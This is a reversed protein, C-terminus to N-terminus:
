PLTGAATAIVTLGANGECSANADGMTVDVQDWVVGGGGGISYPPTPAVPTVTFACAGGDNFALTLSTVTASGGNNNTILVDMRKTDGPLIGWLDESQPDVVLDAATGATFSEASSSGAIDYAAYAAIAIGALVVLTGAVIVIRKKM